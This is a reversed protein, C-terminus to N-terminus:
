SGSCSWSALTVHANPLGSGFGYWISHSSRIAAIRSSLGYLSTSRPVSALRCATHAAHGGVGPWTMVRSSISFCSWSNAGSTSLSVISEGAGSTASASPLYGTGCGPFVDLSFILPLVIERLTALRM